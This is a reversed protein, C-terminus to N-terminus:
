GIPRMRWSAEHAAQAAESVVGHWDLHRERSTVVATCFPCIWTVPTTGHVRDIAEHFSAIADARAREAREQMQRERREDEQRAFDALKKPDSLTKVIEGFDVRMDDAPFRPTDDASDGQEFSSHSM